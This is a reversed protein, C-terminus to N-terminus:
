WLKKDASNKDRKRQSLLVKRARHQGLRKREHREILHARTLYTLRRRGSHWSPNEIRSRRKKPELNTNRKTEPWRDIGNANTEQHRTLNGALCECMALAVMVFPWLFFLVQSGTREFMILDRVRFILLQTSVVLSDRRSYTKASEGILTERM